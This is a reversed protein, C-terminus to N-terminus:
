GTNKFSDNITSADNRVLRAVQYFNLSAPDKVYELLVEFLELPGKISAMKLPSDGSETKCAPNVRLGTQHNGFVRGVSSFSALMSQKRRM